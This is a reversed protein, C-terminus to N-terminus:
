EGPVERASSPTTFTQWLLRPSPALLATATTQRGHALFVAKLLTAVASSAVVALAAGTVGLWAQLPILCLGLLVVGVADAASAHGPRGVGILLGSLSQGIGWLAAGVVLVQALGAAEAFPDGFVTTVAWPLVPELALLMLLAVTASLRAAKTLAAADDSAAARNLFLRQVAPFFAMPVQAATVAVAYIGLVEPTVLGILFFQDLRAGVSGSVVGAWTHLSFRLMRRSSVTSAGDPPAGAPRGPRRILTLGAVVGVAISLVAVRPATLAGLLALAVIGTLRALAALWYNANVRGYAEQGSRVGRYLEIYAGVVVGLTLWRFTPVLHPYTGLLAPAFAVLLLATGVGSVTVIWLGARRVSRLDAGSRVFYAAALPTGVAAMAEAITLPTLLAALEGRGDPGLGRALLPSTVLASLPFAVSALGGLLFSRAGDPLRLRRVPTAVSV